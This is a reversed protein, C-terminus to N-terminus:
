VIVQYPLNAVCVDFPPLTSKLVDGFLIDLKPKLSTGSFRKHLEAVMRGDVECAVVRKCRELLKATM